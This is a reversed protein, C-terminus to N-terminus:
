KESIFNIDHGAALTVIAKKWDQKKGPIQKFTRTKGKAMSTNVATLEVDFLFKVAEKIETKTAGKKVKFSVQKNKAGRSGLYAKETMLPSIIIECLKEKSIM